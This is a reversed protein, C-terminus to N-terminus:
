LELDNRKINKKGRSGRLAVVPKFTALLMM